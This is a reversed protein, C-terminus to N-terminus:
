PIINDYNKQAFLDRNDLRELDFYLKNKSNIESFLQKILTTKGTRRMGTIVTIQKVRLHKKLDSYIKRPLFM